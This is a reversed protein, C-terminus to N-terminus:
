EAHESRQTLRACIPLTRVPSVEQLLAARDEAQGIRLQEADFALSAVNEAHLNRIPEVLASIM